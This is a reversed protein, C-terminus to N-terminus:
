PGHAQMIRADDLADFNLYQPKKFVTMLEKALYTKGVQRPGTLVVMKKTLDNRIPEYLYRKM